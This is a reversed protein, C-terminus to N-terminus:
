RPCTSARRLNASGFKTIPTTSKGSTGSAHHRPTVGAWAALQRAEGFLEIAPLEALLIHCTTEGIGPISTLLAAQRKIAETKAIIGNIRKRPDALEKEQAKLRRQISRLIVSSTVAECRTKLIASDRVLSEAYRSLETLQENEVPPPTWPQFERHESEIFRAILRADASDSKNRRLRQNGFAKICRPNVLHVTTLDLATLAKAVPKADHGTQELCAAAPASASHKALWGTLLDIGATTNDFRESHNAGGGLLHCFLDTKGVDIGPFFAPNSSESSTIKM